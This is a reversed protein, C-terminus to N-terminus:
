FNFFTNTKKSMSNIRQGTSNFCLTRKLKTNRRGDVMTNNKCMQCNEYYGPLERRM